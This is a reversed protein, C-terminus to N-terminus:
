KPIDATRERTGPYITKRVLVGSTGLSAVRRFGERRFMGLTGFWRWEPVAAMKASVVPYAEVIGGGQEKISELAAKLAYKAVGRGRYKPDVFFCTIRWLKVDGVPPAAKRYTRRADIRPLENRDGYQCWGIATKGDYVLIAHSRGERVLMRKDRRNRRKWEESTTGRRLPKARQYFICWCGGEKVALTEFDPLTRASLERITYATPVRNAM